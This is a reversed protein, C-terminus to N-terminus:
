KTYAKIYAYHSNEAGKFLSVSRLGQLPEWRKIFSNSFSPSQSKFGLLAITSNSFPKDDLGEITIWDAKGRIFVIETEGKEFQCKEGYESSGCSKPEGILASVEAKSKGIISPVDVIVDEAQVSFSFIITALTICLKKM